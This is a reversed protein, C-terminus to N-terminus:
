VLDRLTSFLFDFKLVAVEEALEVFPSARLCNGKLKKVAVEMGWLNARWVEGFAGEGILCIFQLQAYSIECKSELQSLKASWKSADLSLDHKAKNNNNSNSNNSNQQEELLRKLNASVEDEEEKSPSKVSEDEREFRRPILPTNDFNFFNFDPAAEVKPSTPPSEM